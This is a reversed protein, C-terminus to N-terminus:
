EIVELQVDLSGSARDTLITIRLNNALEFSIGFPEVIDTVFQPPPTPETVLVVEQSEMIAKILGWKTVFEFEENPLLFFNGVDFQCDFKIRRDQTFTKIGNSPIYANPGSEVEFGNITGLSGVQLLTFGSNPDIIPKTTRIEIAM